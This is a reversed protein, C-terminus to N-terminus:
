VAPLGVQGNHAILTTHPYEKVWADMNPTDAVTVANSESAQAVGWGDLIALMVPRGAAM